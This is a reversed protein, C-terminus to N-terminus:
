IEMSWMSPEVEALEGAISRDSGSGPVYGLHLTIEVACLWMDSM